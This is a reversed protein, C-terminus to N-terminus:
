WKHSIKEGITIQWFFFFFFTLGFVLFGIEKEERGKDEHLLKM